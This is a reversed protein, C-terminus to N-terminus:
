KHASGARLPWSPSSAARAKIARIRILLAALKLNM